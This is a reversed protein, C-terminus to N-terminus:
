QAAVIKASGAHSAVLQREAATHAEGLTVCVTSAGEELLKKASEQEIAQVGPRIVLIPTLPLKARLRRCIYRAQALGGPPISIVCVLDPPAQDGVAAADSSLYASGVSELEVVKPDFLQRWMGWITEDTLTRASVGLV